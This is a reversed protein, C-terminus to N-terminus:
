TRLAEGCRPSYQAFVGFKFKDPQREMEGMWMRMGPFTPHTFSLAFEAWGTNPAIIFGQAELCTAFDEKTMM